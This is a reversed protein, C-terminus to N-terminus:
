ISPLKEFQNHISLILVGFLVAVVVLVTTMLGEASFSLKILTTSIVFGSNRIVKNFKNTTLFSILLLFVDTMILVTFCRDFFIQNIGITGASTSAPSFFSLTVWQYLSYVALGTLVPILCVAVIKKMKVFYSLATPLEENPQILVPRKSNLLYFIFILFFLVLTAVIDFTFQLDPAVNFWNPTFELMSLDHFIKRVIILTIIEYQKGIYITISRPLYYVLLYVEYILIFSFPTYIAAIPNAMSKMNEPFSIFNAEHLGILALHLAFGAVAIVVTALEIRRRSVESLFTVYLLELFNKRRSKSVTQEM